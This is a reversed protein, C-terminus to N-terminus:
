LGVGMQARGIATLDDLRARGTFDVEFHDAPFDPPSDGDIFSPLQRRLYADNKACAPLSAIYMVNSYGSGRHADEVAHIVDSHWFVTDGPQMLPISSLARFLPAHYAAKISLARGPMAGCLDDDAIDDQLARLLIYVMASAIPVLQLTGDGPGQQTLATWGQFTRFMSCVAPSAIEEVETRWAADFPDYARWNGSFVERYVKRFNPEIWREVSGGDCHASLGLSESGPPRRRLRDAYVPVRDPDFHVRGESESRWLRNLFVRAQTLEASQRALVQPKSWYVGYIQPKSSALQGFYRDEARNELKKDLRNREVYDAIDRDWQEVRARDFVNRIVCAGRTKVNAIQEASVRGAAIDDFRIEPIVPEGRERLAAIREAQAIMDAEVEAFVERYNPLRERLENKAARIAGPLDDIQLPM